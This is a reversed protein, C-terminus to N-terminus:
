VAVAHRTVKKYINLFDNEIIWDIAQDTVDDIEKQSLGETINADVLRALMNCTYYGKECDFMLWDDFQEFPDFPNDFTTLMCEDNSTVVNENNLAVNIKDDM